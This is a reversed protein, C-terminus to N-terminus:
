NILQERSISKQEFYMANSIGSFEESYVDWEDDLSDFVDVYGNIERSLEVISDGVNNM